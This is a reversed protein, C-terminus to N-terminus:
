ASGALDIGLLFGQISYRIHKWSIHYKMPTEYSMAIPILYMRLSNPRGQISRWTGKGM